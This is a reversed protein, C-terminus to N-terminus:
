PPATAAPRAAPAAPATASPTQARVPWADVAVLGLLGITLCMRYFGSVGRSTTTQTGPVQSYYRSRWGSTRAADRCEAERCDGHRMLGYQDQIEPRLHRLEDRAAHTLGVDVALDMRVVDPVVHNPAQRGDADDQRATVAAGVLVVLQPRRLRHPRGAHRHEADAVAHLRHRRLQAPRDGPTVMALEAVGLHPGVSVRPQELFELVEPGRFAVPHELDPHTVAVRHRRHRRPEPQHGGGGTARDRAHGVLRPAVVGHLEVGLDGVRLLALGDQRAEDAVDAASAAVPPHAVVDGFRHRANALLDAGVVHDEPERTTDIRAHGRRQDVPGDAILQRAHEHVVAQQAQVLRVEHHLHEGAPQVGLHPVDVGPPLEETM